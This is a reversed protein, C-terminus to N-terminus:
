LNGAPIDLNKLIRPKCQPKEEHLWTHKNGPYRWLPTSRDGKENDYKAHDHALFM